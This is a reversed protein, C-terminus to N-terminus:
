LKEEFMKREDDKLYKGYKELYVRAVPKFNQWDQQNFTHLVKSRLYIEEGPSGYPQTKKLIENWDPKAQPTPVYGAIIDQYIINMLKVHLARNDNESVYKLLIPIGPDTLRKTAADIFSIDEQSYPASLSAIYERAFRTRGAADNTQGAMMALKKVVAKDKKGNMYERLLDAYRQLPETLDANKANVIEINAATPVLPRHIEQMTSFPIKIIERDYTILGNQEIEVDFPQTYISATLGEKELMRLHQTMVEYKVRLTAPTVNIYGWANNANWQHDAVFVGIGGFEGLVRGKGELQPANMPDPYSHIDALDSGAWANPSPGRLRENIYLVEGSHGNLLRTPDMKKIWSSLREQDYQGWKENFLTWTTISPHNFLERINEECEAEFNKKAVDTLDFSPNVMDQWVIMGLKDCWYYWREPERKIHKRITNFGMAKIAKIDFALAEDTPATYIGDPWFGQDLVGLNYVYKNNLYIRDYGSADRKVEVKRMGFYSKVEDVTKGNNILSVTLDYLKPNEPTWPIVDDLTISIDMNTEATVNKGGANVRVKYKKDDNSKVRVKLVSMDLDPILKLSEIYSGPVIEMWVTQWIGTVPTYWIDKPNLVQKGHPNPGQDTPDYVEVAIENMGANLFNTADITFNGYGGSHKGVEKKNIFVTAQWDVAGFHLLVKEGKKMAPKSITRKYWLLQDPQVMKKVGSLASEVPYPVLIQGHFRTPWEIKNDTIAYDWLGNLNTWNARQLQPRPYEKLANSPSVEKSWRTALQLNAPQWAQAAVAFSIITATLQLFIKKKM